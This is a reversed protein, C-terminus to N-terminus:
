AMNRDSKLMRRGTAVMTMTSPRIHRPSSASL